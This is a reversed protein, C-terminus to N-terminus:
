AENARKVFYIVREEGWIFEAEQALGAQHLVDTDINSPVPSEHVVTSNVLFVEDVLGAELFRHM